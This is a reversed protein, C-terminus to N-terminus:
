LGLFSLYKSVKRICVTSLVRALQETSVLVFVCMQDLEKHWALNILCMITYILM